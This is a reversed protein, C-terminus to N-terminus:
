DDKLVERVLDDETVGQKEMSKSAKRQIKQIRKWAQEREEPTAVIAAETENAPLVRAVTRGQDDQVVLGQGAQVRALFSRVPESLTKLQVKIMRM